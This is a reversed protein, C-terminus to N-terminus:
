MILLVNPSPNAIIFSTDDAYLTLKAKNGTVMPLDNIYLLFLLPGLISGQPVGHKVEKWDSYTTNNTTDKIAVRQHRETLYSKILRGFIGKIGYLELKSLLIEYNVCDFAKCLDCFIGGVIQKNNLASIVELLLTYVANDTSTNDRFGYQEEALIKYLIIHANIRNYIIKELIKSFSILLSIPRFNSM